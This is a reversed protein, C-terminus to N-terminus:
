NGRKDCNTSYPCGACNKGAKKNKVIIWIALMVFVVLVGIIIIDALMSNQEGVIQEKQKRSNVIYM